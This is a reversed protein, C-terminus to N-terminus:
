LAYGAEFAKINLEEFGKKVNKSIIDHWDIGEVGLAKVLAGLLVINMAKSNGLEDAICRAIAYSGGLVKFANLGFRYSEDKVYVRKLGLYDALGSLRTLPTVTYQPFSRHFTRAKEVNELSMVQLNSDESKPMHNGVWKMEERKMKRGKRCASSFM